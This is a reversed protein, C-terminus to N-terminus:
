LALFHKDKEIIINDTIPIKISFLYNDIDSLFGGGGGGLGGPLFSLLDIGFGFGEFGFFYVGNPLM